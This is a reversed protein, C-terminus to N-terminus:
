QYTRKKIKKLINSQELAAKRKRDQRGERSGHPGVVDIVDVLKKKGQEKDLNAAAIAGDVLTTTSTLLQPPLSLSKGPVLAEYQHALSTLEFESNTLANKLEYLLVMESRLENFESCIEETCSPQMELGLEGCMNEIAKTKKLGVSTPLKMRTSRLSVGSSKVDPWKIGTQEVQVPEPRNMRGVVMKQKKGIKKMENNSADAQAIMKQLDATKKEREKKRAEIKRLETKLMEEEDLQDQTRNYLRRLQEKRRREHEADYVFTKKNPEHTGTTGGHVRELKEVINYYREKLDEVSRSSYTNCDWRDAMVIFRLDFRSALDMLHDTEQRTWGPTALHHNFELETYTPIECVKNFRVFSYDKGEEQSRRWHNLVLGDKRANNTFPMWKWSRVRKMGLKARMQKYGLDKSTDTQILPCPLEKNESYLLNYLERHMGEPRQFTSGVSKKPKKKDTGLIQDKTITSDAPAMGMIDRVDASSAM